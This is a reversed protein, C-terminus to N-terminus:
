VQFHMICIWSKGEFREWSQLKFHNTLSGNLKFCLSRQVKQKQMRSLSFLDSFNSSGRKLRLIKWEGATFFIGEKWQALSLCSFFPPLPPPPNFAQEWPLPRSSFERKTLANMESITAGQEGFGLCGKRLGGRSSSFGYDQLQKIGRDNKKSYYHTFLLPAASATRPATHTGGGGMDRELSDEIQTFINTHSLWVPCLIYTQIHEMSTHPIKTFLLWSQARTTWGGSGIETAIKFSLSLSLPFFLILLLTLHKKWSERDRTEEKKATLLPFLSVNLRIKEEEMSFQSVNEPPMCYAESASM